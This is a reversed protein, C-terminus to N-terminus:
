SANFLPMAVILSKAVDAEVIGYLKQSMVQQPNTTVNILSITEQTVIMSGFREGIRIRCTQNSGFTPLIQEIKDIQHQPVFRILDRHHEGFFHHGVLPLRNALGSQFRQSAAVFQNGHILFAQIIRIIGIGREIM